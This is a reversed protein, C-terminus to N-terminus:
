SSKVRALQKENEVLRKENEALQKEQEKLRKEQKEVMYQVANRDMERLAASFMYLVEEQKQSYSAMERHIEELWPYIECLQEAEETSETSLKVEIRKRVGTECSSSDNAFM